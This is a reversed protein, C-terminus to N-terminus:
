TWWDNCQDNEWRSHWFLLFTGLYIWTVRLLWQRFRRTSERSAVLRHIRFLNGSFIDLLTGLAIAQIQGIPKWRMGICLISNKCILTEALNLSPDQRSSRSNQASVWTPLDCRGRKQVRSWARDGCLTARPCSLDCERRCTACEVRM